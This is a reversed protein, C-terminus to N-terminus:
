KLDVGNALFRENKKIKDLQRSSLESIFKSCFQEDFLRGYFDIKWKSKEDHTLGYSNIMDDNKAFDFFKLIENLRDHCFVLSCFFFCYYLYESVKLSESYKKLKNLDFNNSVVYFFIDSFISINIKGKYIQFLSNLDKYHHLCLHILEMEPSLSKIQYGAINIKTLDNFFVDIEYKNEEGWFVSFNVDISVFPCFKNGTEKIFPALQHTNSVYFVKEEKEYEVITNGKLYGQVFGNDFLKEKILKMNRISVLMDIDLSNRMRIDGYIRRSLVAGKVIAYDINEIEKLFKAISLFKVKYNLENIALIMDLKKKQENSLRMNNLLYYCKNEFLLDFIDTNSKQKKLAKILPDILRDM